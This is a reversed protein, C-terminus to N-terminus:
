LLNSFSEECLNEPTITPDQMVKKIGNIIEKRSGYNIMLNLQLTSGNKTKSEILEYNSLLDKPLSEKEGIINVRISQKILNDIEKKIMTSLLKMLFSVETKPRKWNETSFAYVSLHKINLKVCEKVIERLASVGAKHGLTRKKKQQKAWRGNGDMIIAIHKPIKKLNISTSTQSNEKTLM